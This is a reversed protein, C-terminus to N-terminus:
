RPLPQHGQEQVAAAQPKGFTETQPYLAEIEVRHQQRHVVALSLLIARHRQRLTNHRPDALLHLPGAAEDRPDQPPSHPTNKGRCSSRFYLFAALSNM